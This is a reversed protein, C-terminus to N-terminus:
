EIIYFEGIVAVAPKNNVILQGIGTFTLETLELVKTIVTAEDGPFLGRQLLCDHMRTAVLQVPGSDDVECTNKSVFYYLCCFLEAIMELQLVGPYVPNQPFHGRFIPDLPDVRRAGVIAQEQLDVGTIRDLFVFPERNPLIKFIEDRGFDVPTLSSASEDILPRRKAKKILKSFDM